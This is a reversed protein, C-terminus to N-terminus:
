AHFETDFLNGGCFLCLPAPQAIPYHRCHPCEDLELGFDLVDLSKAGLQVFADVFSARLRHIEAVYETRDQVSLWLRGGASSGADLGFSILWKRPPPVSGRRRFVDAIGDFYNHFDEPTLAVQNTM